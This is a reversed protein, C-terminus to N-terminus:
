GGSNELKKIVNMVFYTDGNLFTVQRNSITVIFEGYSYGDDVTHIGAIPVTIGGASFETIIEDTIPDRIGELCIIEFKFTGALDSLILKVVAGTLDSGVGAENLIVPINDSDGQGLQIDIM